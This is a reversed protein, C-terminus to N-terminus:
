DRKNNLHAQIAQLEAETFLDHRVSVTEYYSSETIIRSFHVVHGADKNDEIMKRIDPRKLAGVVTEWLYIIDVRRGININEVLIMVGFRDPRLSEGGLGNLWACTFLKCAVPRTDYITCGKGVICKPCWNADNKGIEAVAFPKCCATCEGCTRKPAQALEM